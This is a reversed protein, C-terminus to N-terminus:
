PQDELKKKHAYLSSKSIGLEACMKSTTLRLTLLERLREPDYKSPRGKQVQKGGSLCNVCEEYPCYYLCKEIDKQSDGCRMEHENVFEDHKMTPIKGNNM